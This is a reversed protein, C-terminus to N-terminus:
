LFHKVMTPVLRLQGSSGKSASGIGDLDSTRCCRNLPVEEGGRVLFFTVSFLGPPSDVADAPLLLLFFDRVADDAFFFGGTSAPLAEKDGM